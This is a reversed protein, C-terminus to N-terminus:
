LSSLGDRDILLAKVPVTQYAFCVVLVLYPVRGGVSCLPLVASM